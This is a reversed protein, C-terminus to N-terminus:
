SFVLLDVDVRAKDNLRAGSAAARQSSLNPGNLINTDFATEGGLILPLQLATM